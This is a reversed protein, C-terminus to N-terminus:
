KRLKSFVYDNQEQSAHCGFCLKNAKNGVNRETKTDKNFEEFGWGGTSDFKQQNKVMVDIFRRKDEKTSGNEQEVAELFDAVLVAGDPFVGSAYGELAKKNAYIHMFGGSRAFGPSKPGIITTKVHTWDRYGEPYDVLNEMHEQMIFDTSVSWVIISVIVVFTKKM